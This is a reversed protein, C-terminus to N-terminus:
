KEDILMAMNAAAVPPTSQYKLPRNPSFELSTYPGLAHQQLPSEWSCASHTNLIRVLRVEACM